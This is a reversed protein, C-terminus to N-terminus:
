KYFKENILYKRQRALDALVQESAKLELPFTESASARVIFFIKSMRKEVFCFLIKSGGTTLSTVTCPTVKV